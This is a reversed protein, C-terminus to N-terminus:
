KKIGKLKCLTDIYYLEKQLVFCFLSKEFDTNIGIHQSSITDNLKLSANCLHEIAYATALGGLISIHSIHDKSLKSRLILSVALGSGKPTFWRRNFRGRGATQEDAVVLTGEPAGKSALIKAEDNTSDISRYFYLPHGFKERSLSESITAHSFINQGM